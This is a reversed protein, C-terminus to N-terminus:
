DRSSGGYLAPKSNVQVFDPGDHEAGFGDGILYTTVQECAILHIIARRVLGASNDPRLLPPMVYLACFCHSVFAYCNEFALCFDGEFFDCHPVTAVPHWYGIGRVRFV